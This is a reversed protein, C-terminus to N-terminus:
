EKLERLWISRYRVPHGHDQLGIPLRSPTPKYEPRVHHGTPGTLTVNDQVLVGNLFVTARAPQTLKGQADFHPQHFIIDYSNWEGPKRTPSVLPAYQGYVAGPIGDAYTKNDYADLVQFEYLGQLFVGSNGRDQGTGRPPNPSAWEVHLQVDGFGERTHIGGTRPEVEFYGDTVKWPAPGDGNDSAWKSLDKGDFLVIADSPASVPGSFEPPTIVPPMPRDDSNPPYAYVSAPVGPVPPPPPPPPTQACAASVGGFAFVGLLATFLSYGTRGLTNQQIMMLDNM